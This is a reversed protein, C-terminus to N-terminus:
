NRPPPPPPSTSPGVPKAWEDLCAQLPVKPLVSTVKAEIGKAEAGEVRGEKAEAGEVRARKM